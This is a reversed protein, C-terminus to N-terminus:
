LAGFSVDDFLVGLSPDRYAKVGVLRLLMSHSGDPALSNLSVNQWANRTSPQSSFLTSTASGQCDSSPFFQLSFGASGGGTTGTLMLKVSTKYQISPNVSVCQRAGGMYLGDTDGSVTNTVLLSGSQASGNADTTSRSVTVGFEPYWGATNTDFTPNVITASTGGTGVGQRRNGDSRGRRGNGHRRGHRGRGRDRGNGGDGVAGGTGVVGASVGSGVAGTGVAGGSGTSGGSGPVDGNACTADCSSYDCGPWAWRAVSQWRRTRHLTRRDDDRGDVRRGGRTPEQVARQRCGHSVRHRGGNRLLVATRRGQGRVQDAPPLGDRGQVAHKPTDGHRPGGRGPDHGARLPERLGRVVRGRVHPVHQLDDHRRAGGTAPAALRASRHRHRQGHRRDRDRRDHWRHGHRRGPWGHRHRRRHRRQCNGRRHYGRQRDRRHRWRDRDRWRRYLEGALVHERSQLLAPQRRQGLPFSPDVFRYAVDIADASEAAAEIEAKCPGNAAGTLCAVDDVGAGCYCPEAQTASCSNGRMCALAALCLDKRPKGAGPGATANGTAQECGTLYEPCHSLECDRTCNASSGGTGTGGGSGGTGTAGGSGSGGGSGTVGGSGGTGASGGSGGSGSGTVGGSGTTGPADGNACTSECSTYDCYLLSASLGWAVSPDTFRYAVMMPNTSEAAAEAEAKCPGNANGTLCSIDSVTGCYCPQADGNLQPKDSSACKTRRACALMAQCLQNRPTGKKPGDAAPTTDPDCPGVLDTCQTLECAHCMMYTAPAGGSGSPGGGAGANGGSNAGSGGAGGSGTSGVGGSGTAGGSGTCDVTGAGGGARCPATCLMSDCQGVIGLAVGVAYAPNFFRGAIDGPNTTEAANEIETKCPGHAEGSLCAIDSPDAGIGCYCEEGAPNNTTACQSDHVCTLVALCLDSKNTGAARGGTAKGTLSQCAELTYTDGYSYAPNSKTCMTQECSQCATGGSTGNGCTGGAGNAGGSGQDTPAGM